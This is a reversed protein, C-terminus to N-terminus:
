ESKLNVIDSLYTLRNLEHVTISVGFKEELAICIELVVLSDLNLEKIRLDTEGSIFASLKAAHNSSSGGAAKIIAVLDPRNM